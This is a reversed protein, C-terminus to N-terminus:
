DQVNKQKTNEMIKIELDIVGKLTSVQPLKLRLKKINVEFDFAMLIM